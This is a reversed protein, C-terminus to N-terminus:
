EFNIEDGEEFPSTGVSMQPSGCFLSSTEVRLSECSPAEYCKESFLNKM